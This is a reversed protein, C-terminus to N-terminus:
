QEDGKEEMIEAIILEHVRDCAEIYGVERALVNFSEMMGDLAVDEKRQQERERESLERMYPDTM